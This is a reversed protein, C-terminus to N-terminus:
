YGPILIPKLMIMLVLRIAGMFMHAIYTAQVTGIASLRGTCDHIGCLMCGKLYEHALFNIYKTGQITAGDGTMARGYGTRQELFKRQELLLKNYLNNLLDSMLKQRTPGKYRHNPNPNTKPNPNPNPDILMVSRTPALKTAAIAERFLPKDVKNTAVDLGFFAKAWFMDVEAESYVPEGRM